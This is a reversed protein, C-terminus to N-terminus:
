PRRRGTAAIAKGVCVRARAMVTSSLLLKLMDRLGGHRNSISFRQMQKSYGCPIIHMNLQKNLNQNLPEFSASALIDRLKSNMQPPQFWFTSCLGIEAVM